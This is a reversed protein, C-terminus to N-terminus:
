DKGKTEKEPKSEKGGGAGGVAHSVQKSSNMAAMFNQEGKSEGMDHSAQGVWSFVQSSMQSLVGYITWTVSIMIVVWL